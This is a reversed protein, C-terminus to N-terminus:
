TLALTGEVADLSAGGNLTGAIFREALPDEVQKRITRRLDRAGFKAGQCLAVLAACAALTYTFTVGKEAMPQVYEELMLSAIRALSEESLPKFVVVEDVRGLFEPRM